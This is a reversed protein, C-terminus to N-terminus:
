AKRKRKKGEKRHNRKQKKAKFFSIKLFQSFIKSFKEFQFLNQIMLFNIIPVFKM